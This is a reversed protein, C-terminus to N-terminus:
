QWLEWTREPGKQYYWLPDLRHTLYVANISFHITKFLVTKLNLQTYIFSRHKISNNDLYLLVQFWKFKNVLSFLKFYFQKQCKFQTSLSFQITQFLLIWICLFPNSMLYDVITSISYLWILWVLGFYYWRTKEKSYFIPKLLSWVSYIIWSVFAWWPKTIYIINLLCNEQQYCPIFGWKTANRNNAM